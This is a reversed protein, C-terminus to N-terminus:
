NCHHFLRQIVQMQTYRVSNGKILKNRGDFALVGGTFCREGARVKLSNSGEAVEQGKQINRKREEQQDNWLMYIRELTEWVSFLVFAKKAGM